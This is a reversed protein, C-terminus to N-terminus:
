CQHNEQFFSSSTMFNKLVNKPEAAYKKNVFSIDDVMRSDLRRKRPKNWQQLISTCSVEDTDQLSLVRSRLRVFDEVAFCVAGIHKCSGQDVVQQVHADLVLLVTEAQMLMYTLPIFVIKKEDRVFM